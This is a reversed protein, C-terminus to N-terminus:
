GAGRTAGGLAHLFHLGRKLAEWSSMDLDDLTFANLASNDLSKEAEGADTSDIVLRVFDGELLPDGLAAGVDGAHQEGRHPDHQRAAQWRTAPAHPTLTVIATDLDDPDVAVPWLDDEVSVRLEM